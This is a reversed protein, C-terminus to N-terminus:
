SRSEQQPQAIVRERQIYSELAVQIESNTSRRNASALSAMQTKLELPIRLLLRAESEDM